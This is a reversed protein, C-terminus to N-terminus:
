FYLVFLTNKKRKEKTKLLDQTQFFKETYFVPSKSRSVLLRLKAHWFVLLTLREHVM